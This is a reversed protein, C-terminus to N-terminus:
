LPFLTRVVNSPFSAANWGDPSRLIGKFCEPGAALLSAYPSSKGSWAFLGMDCSRKMIESQLNFFAKAAGEGYNIPLQVDFIGMLSYAMDEDKTTTRGSAWNLRERINYSGPNFDNLDDPGIGVVQEVVKLFVVNGKDLLERTGERQEEFSYPFHLGPKVKDNNDVDDAWKLGDTWNNREGRGNLKDNYWEILQNCCKEMERELKPNGYDNIPVWEKNYFQMKQPALLEQLTWGRTFWSDGQIDKISTTDGMYAICIESKRYWKFMSVLSEQLEASSSKDICCTDSWAFKCGFKEAKDLFNQLKKYGRAKKDDIVTGGRQNTVDVPDLRPVDKFQPEPGSWKHSFIAYKFFDEVIKKQEDISKTRHPYLEVKLLEEIVDRKVLERSPIYILYIPIDNNVLHGIFRSVELDYPYESPKPSTQESM